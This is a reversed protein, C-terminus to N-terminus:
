NILRKCTCPIADIRRYMGQASSQTERTAERAWWFHTTLSPELNILFKMTDVNSSSFVIEDGNLCPTTLSILSTSSARGRSSGIVLVVSIVFTVMVLM